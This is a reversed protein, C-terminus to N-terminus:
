GRGGSDAINRGVGTVIVLFLCNGLQGHELVILTTPPSVHTCPDITRRRSKCRDVSKDAKPGFMIIQAPWASFM